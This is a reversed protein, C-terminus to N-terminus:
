YPRTPESIHILSLIYAQAIVLKDGFRSELIARATHYGEFGGIALCSQISTMAKGSTYKVLRNLKAADSAASTGVTEDFATIFSFYKLPDGDYVFLEFKPLNLASLMDQRLNSLPASVPVFKKPTMKIEGDLVM